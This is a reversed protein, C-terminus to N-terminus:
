NLRKAVLALVITVNDSLVFSKGGVGFDRRNITFTGEFLYGDSNPIATFPFSVQKSVDRITIIGTLLFTGAKITNSIKTSAFSLQSFKAVDFYDEKKLHDDRLGNGTNITSASVTANFAATSSNAPNFQLQGKLGTLNGTVNLGFNRITFKVSSGKDVLVFNQAFLGNGIM